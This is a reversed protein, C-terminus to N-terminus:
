FANFFSLLQKAKKYDSTQGYFYKYISKEKQVSISKLGKFNAPVTELKKGSASIQIKFFIDEKSSSTVNTKNDEKKPTDKKDEEKSM